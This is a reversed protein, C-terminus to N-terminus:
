GPAQNCSFRVIIKRHSLLKRYDYSKRTILGWYLRIVASRGKRLRLRLQREVTGRREHDPVDGDGALRPRRDGDM